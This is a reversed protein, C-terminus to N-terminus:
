TAPFNEEGESMSRASSSSASARTQIDVVFDNEQYYPSYLATLYAELEARTYGAVVVARLEPLLITGDIQM